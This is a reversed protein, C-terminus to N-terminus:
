AAPCTLSIEPLGLVTLGNTLLYNCYLLVLENKAICYIQVVYWSLLFTYIVHPLLNEADAYFRRVHTDCKVCTLYFLARRLFAFFFPLM